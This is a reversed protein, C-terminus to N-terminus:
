MITTNSQKAYKYAGLAVWGLLQGDRTIDCKREKHVWPRQDWVYGPVITDPLTKIDYQTLFWQGQADRGASRIEMRASDQGTDWGYAQASHVREENGFPAAHYMIEIGAHVASM